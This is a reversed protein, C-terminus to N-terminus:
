KEGRCVITSSDEHWFLQSYEMWIDEGDKIDKLAILQLRQYPGICRMKVNAELSDDVGTPDNIRIILSDFQVSLGEATKFAYM